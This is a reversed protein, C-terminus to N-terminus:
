KVSLIQLINTKDIWQLHLINVECKEYVSNATSTLDEM